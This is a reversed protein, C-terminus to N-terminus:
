QAQDPRVIAKVGEISDICVVAGVPIDAGDASRATWIKGDLKVAGSDQLNDIPEVVIAQKGVLADVNTKVKHPEVFKRLFPRVAILLVLSVLAFILVQLWLPAGLSVALLAALAGGVFWISILAVTGFEVALFIVALSIWLVYPM